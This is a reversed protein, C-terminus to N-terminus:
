WHVEATFMIDTYKEANSGKYNKDDLPDYTIANLIWRVNKNQHYSAGYILNTTTISEDTTTNKPNWVDYRGLIAFEKHEGFRYTANVSYGDGNKKYYDAHDMDAVIYQAAILFEPQNYVTHFGFFKYSENDYKANSENLQGYSSIDWYTMKTAKRKKTGQGLVAATLRWEFSNAYGDEQAHYGEGNYYGIESQFYETKTKFNIGLDASNTLDAANKTEVFAKSISRYWWGSHEEYDLWPRHAQGFEVGTFPLVENLYLYAYKLRVNVDGSENQHTDLTMRMYSKPDDFLYAKVQLYNRRTEFKSESHTDANDFSRYRYGLYHVGSFKLKSAKAFVPVDKDKANIFEGMEERGEGAQTFVQGTVPDTYLSVTKAYVVGSLISASLLSIAIKKM